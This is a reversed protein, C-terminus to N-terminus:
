RDISSTWYISSFFTYETTKPHLTRYIDTLDTYYLINNWASLEKSVKQRSSRKMSTLPIHFDGIIITNSGIDGNLDTLLQSVYKPAEIKPVYINVFTIDEWQISGKIYHGEKDRILFYTKYTQKKNTKLVSIALGDKKKPKWKCPIEKEM